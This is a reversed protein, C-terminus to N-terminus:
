DLADSVTNVAEEILHTVNEEVESSAHHKPFM